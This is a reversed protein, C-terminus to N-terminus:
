PTESIMKKIFSIFYTLCAFFLIRKCLIVSVSTSDAISRGSCTSGDISPLNFAQVSFIRSTELLLMYLVAFNVLHAVGFEWYPSPKLLYMALGLLVAYLPSWFGNVVMGWDGRIFADGIDLYSIGDFGMTHRSDWASIAGFSIAIFWFLIILRRHYSDRRM